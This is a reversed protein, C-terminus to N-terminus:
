LLPVGIELVVPGESYVLGTTSCALLDLSVLELQEVVPLGQFKGELVSGYSTVVTIGLPKLDLPSFLRIKSTEGTNWVLTLDSVLDGGVCSLTGAGEIHFEGSTLDPDSLSICTNLTTDASFSTEQNEFTLGPSYTQEQYGICTASGAQAFVGASFVSVGLFLFCVKACSVTWLILKKIM